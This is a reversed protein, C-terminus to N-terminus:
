RILVAALVAIGLAMAVVVRWDMRMGPHPESQKAMARGLAELQRWADREEKNM